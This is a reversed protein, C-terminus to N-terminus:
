QLVLVGWRHLLVQVELFLSWLEEEEELEAVEVLHKEITIFLM